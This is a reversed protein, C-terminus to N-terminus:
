SCSSIDHVFLGAAREARLGPVHDAVLEVLRQREGVHAVRRVVAVADPLLERRAFVVGSRRAARCSARACARRWRPARASRAVPAEAGAHGPQGPVPFPVREAAVHQHREVALRGHDVRHAAGVGLRHAPVDLDRDLVHAVAAVALVRLHHDLPQALQLKLLAADPQHLDVRAVAVVQRDVLVVRQALSSGSASSTNVLCNRCSRTTIWELSSSSQTRLAPLSQSSAMSAITARALGPTFSYSSFAAAAAAIMSPPPSM